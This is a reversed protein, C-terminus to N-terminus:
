VLLYIGTKQPIKLTRYETCGRLVLNKENDICCFNGIITRGDSVQVKFTRGLMQRLKEVNETM